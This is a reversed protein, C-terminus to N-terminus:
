SQELMCWRKSLQLIVLYFQSTSHVSVMEVVTSSSSSVELSRKLSRSRRAIGAIFNKGQKNKKLM